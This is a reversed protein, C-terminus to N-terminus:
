ASSTAAGKSCGKKRKKKPPQKEGKSLPEKDDPTEELTRKAVSEHDEQLKCSEVLWADDKPLQRIDKSFIIARNERRRTQAHLIVSKCNGYTADRATSETLGFLFGLNAADAPSRLHYPQMSGSSIVIGKGKTVQMLSCCNAIVQQRASQDNICHAYQIEFFLGRSVATGLQQRKVNYGMRSEFPLSIIDFEGNNCLHQLLKEHRPVIALLDYKKAVASQFLRHCQISEDAIATLRTLVKFRRKQTQHESFDFDQIYFLPPEPIKNKENLADEGIVTNLAVAEYGLTYATKIMTVVINKAIPDSDNQVIINLDM